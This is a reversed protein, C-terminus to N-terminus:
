LSGHWNWDENSELMLWACDLLTCGGFPPLHSENIKWFNRLKPRFNSSSCDLLLPRVAHTLYTCTHQIAFGTCRNWNIVYSNLNISSFSHCVVFLSISHYWNIILPPDWRVASSSCPVLSGSVRCWSSAFSCWACEGIMQTSSSISLSDILLSILCDSYSKYSFNSVFCSHWISACTFICSFLLTMSTAYFCLWLFRVLKAWCLRMTSQAVARKNHFHGITMCM